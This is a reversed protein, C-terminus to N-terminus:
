RGALGLRKRLDGNETALDAVTDRLNTVTAALAIRQRRESDLETELQSVRTSLAAANDQLTDILASQVPALGAQRALFYTALSLGLGVSTALIFAAFPGFDV